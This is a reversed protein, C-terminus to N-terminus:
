KVSAPNDGNIGVELLNERLLRYPPIDLNRKAEQNRFVRGAADYWSGRCNDRLGGPWPQLPADAAGAAVWRLPCGMDSGRDFALFWEPHRARGPNSLGAPQRASGSHPDLLEAENAALSALLPSNRRILLLNGGGWRIRQLTGAMAERDLAIQLPAIGEPSEEPKDTSALLIYLVTAVTVLLMLKVAVRLQLRRLSDPM